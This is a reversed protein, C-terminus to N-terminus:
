RLSMVKWGREEAVKLLIDDPDVAVPHDVEELLPLDNHSDSYFSSGKLDHHTTELWEHLRHVKGEQFSPKGDVKGTFKGDVEEPDTAILHDVGLLFAIPETVFRNTSTIMITYDGQDRHGNVLDRAKPLVMPKIITEIFEERHMELVERDHDSLPKLAFELYEMMDLRGAKYDEFFRDNAERHAKSDVLGKSALFDGWAHDSDGHILTHDLDFLAIKQNTEASM